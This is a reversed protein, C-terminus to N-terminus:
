EGVKNIGAYYILYWSNDLFAWRREMAFDGSEHLMHEVIIKDTVPTFQREFGSTVDFGRQVKWNERRWRFERSQLQSSDAYSPLGELPFLIHEMQFASDQHFRNYFSMFADFSAGDIEDQNAAQNNPQCWLCSLGLLGILFLRNM